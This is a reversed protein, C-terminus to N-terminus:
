TNQAASQLQSGCGTGPRCSVGAAAGGGQRTTNLTRLENRQRRGAAQQRSVAAQQRSGATQQWIPLCRGLRPPAGPDPHCLLPGVLCSALGLLVLSTGALGWPLWRPFSDHSRFITNARGRGPEGLPLPAALWYSAITTHRAGSRNTRGCM